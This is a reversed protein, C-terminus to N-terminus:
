KVSFLKARKISTWNEIWFWQQFALFRSQLKWNGSGTKCERLTGRDLRSIVTNKVQFCSFLYYLAWTLIVNYYTALLFSLMVNAM